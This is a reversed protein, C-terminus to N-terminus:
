SQCHPCWFTIREATEAGQDASRILTGCRRCPRGARGYVWTQEGPRQVGTTVQSFREKNADMLRQATTVLADLAAVEGVPRWPDVGRLFLVEAKYLNGIGALNRQDLLAEGIARAPAARLRRAAEAEDWDPGLLDPGLHGVVSAERATPLVEVIGLQYGVAQWTDNALVLRIRHSGGIREGAPRVRWSGDMRLHTHVTIGGEVRVLLHKGRAVVETVTRGALNTTAYRPVRVDSRTLVRGALAKHLRRATLWVTDGEPV